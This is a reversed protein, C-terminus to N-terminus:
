LLEWCGRLPRLPPMRVSSGDGGSTRCGGLVLATRMWCWTTSTPLQLSSSPRIHSVAACPRPQAQGAGPPPLPQGWPPEPQSLSVKLRKQEPVLLHRHLASLISCIIAAFGGMPSPSCLPLFLILVAACSPFSFVLFTLFLFFSFFFFFFGFFLVLRTHILHTLCVSLPHVSLCVSPHPLRPILSWVTGNGGRLTPSPSFFVSLPPCLAVAAVRHKFGSSSCWFWDVLVASRGLTACREWFLRVVVASRKWGRRAKPGCLLFSWLGLPIEFGRPADESSPLGWLLRRVKRWSTRPGM